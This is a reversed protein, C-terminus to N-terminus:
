SRPESRTSDRPDRCVELSRSISLREAIRGPLRIFEQRGAITVYADFKPRALVAALETLTADSVLIQDHDVAKRVARAPISGPLLLRSM